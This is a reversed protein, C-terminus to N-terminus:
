LLTSGALALEDKNTNAKIKSFMDGFFSPSTEEKPEVVQNQQLINLMNTEEQNLKSEKGGKGTELAIYDNRSASSLLM